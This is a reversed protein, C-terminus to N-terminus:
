RGRPPFGRTQPQTRPRPTGWCPCPSLSRHPAMPLTLGSGMQIKRRRQSRPPERLILGPSPAGETQPGLPQPRPPSPCLACLACLACLSSARTMSARMLRTRGRGRRLCGRPAPGGPGPGLLIRSRAAKGPQLDAKCLPHQARLPRRGPSRPGSPDALLTSLSPVSAPDEADAVGPLQTAWDSASARGARM